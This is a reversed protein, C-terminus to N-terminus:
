SEVRGTIITAWWPLGATIHLWELSSQLLGIPTYGGLGLESFPVEQIPQLVDQASTALSETSIGSVDTLTASPDETFVESGTDNETSYNYKLSIAALSGGPHRTLFPQFQVLTRSQLSYSSSTKFTLISLNRSPIYQTKRGVTRSFKVNYLLTRTLKARQVIWCSAM